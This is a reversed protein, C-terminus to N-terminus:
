FKAMRQSHDKLSLNTLDLTTLTNNISLIRQLQEINEDSIENMGIDFELITHNQELSKILYGIGSSSMHNCRISFYQLCETKVLADALLKAGQDSIKNYGINLYTLFNTEMLIKSLYKAGDNSIDNSVFNLKILSLTTKDSLFTQITQLCDNGLKNYSLDLSELVSLLQHIHDNGAIQNHSFDLNKLTRNVMLTKSMTIISETTIQNNSVCLENLSKNLKLNISIKSMGYDTIRNLKLNLLLLSCNVRLMNGIAEAGYDCIDNRELILHTLTTNTELSKCLIRICDGSLRNGSLNLQKLIINTGLYESIIKINDDTIRHLHLDTIKSSTNNNMKLTEILIENAINPLHIVLTTDTKIIRYKTENNEMNIHVTLNNKTNLSKLILKLDENNSLMWDVHDIHYIIKINKNEELCQELKQIINLQKKYGFTSTLLINYFELQKILTKDITTILQELENEKLKCQKIILKYLNLPGTGILDLCLKRIDNSNLLDKILADGTEEIYEGGWSRFRKLFEKTEQQVFLEDYHYKCVWRIHGDSTTARYLNGLTEQEDFRKLFQKLERLEVGTAPKNYSDSLLDTQSIKNLMSNMKDINTSLTEWFEKNELFEPTPLSVGVYGLPPLVASGLVLACRAITIIKALHQGYKIFFQKPQKIEYGEHIAFHIKDNEESCECLFYLCYSNRFLNIPNWRCYKRPLVIFMRPITYEALGYMLRLLHDTNTIITDAKTELKKTNAILIDTNRRIENLQNYKYLNNDMTTTQESYEYCYFIRQSDAKIRFPSSTQGNDDCLYPIQEDDDTTLTTVQPFYHQIDELRVCKMNEITRIIVKKIKGNYSIKQQTMFRQFREIVTNHWFGSINQKIQTWFSRNELVAMCWRYMKDESLSDMIGLTLEDVGCPPFYINKGDDVYAVTNISTILAMRENTNRKVYYKINNIEEVRLNYKLACFINEEFCSDILWRLRDSVTFQGPSVCYIMCLPDIQNKANNIYPYFDNVNWNEIGATDWFNIKYTQGNCSNKNTYCKTEKTTSDLGDSTPTMWKGCFKNILTSKGSHPPGCILINCETIKSTVFRQITGFQTIREIVRQLKDAFKQDINI